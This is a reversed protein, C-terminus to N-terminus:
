NSKQIKELHISLVKITQQLREEIEQHLQLLAREGLATLKYIRRPHGWSDDLYETAYGMRVIKKLLPYISGPSPRWRGSTMVSIAEIIRKGYMDDHALMSMVYYPLMGKLLLGGNLKSVNMLRGPTKSKHHFLEGTTYVSTAINKM